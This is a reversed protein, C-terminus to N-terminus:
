SYVDNEFECKKNDEFVQKYISNAPIDEVGTKYDVLKYYEDKESDFTM